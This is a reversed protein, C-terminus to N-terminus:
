DNPVRLWLFNSRLHAPRRAATNGGRSGSTQSSRESSIDDVDSSEDGARAIERRLRAALVPRLRRLARYHWLAATINDDAVSLRGLNYHAAACTPDRRLAKRYYEGAEIYRQQRHYALGIYYYVTAETADSSIALKSQEAAEAVPPPVAAATGDTGMDDLAVAFAPRLRLAQKYAHAAAAYRQQAAYVDGLGVYAAAQQPDLRLAQRYFREAQEYRQYKHCINGHDLAEAADMADYNAAEEAYLPYIPTTQTPLRRQCSLQREATRRKTLQPNRTPQCRTCHQEARDKWGTQACWVNPGNGCLLVVAYTLLAARINCCHSITM